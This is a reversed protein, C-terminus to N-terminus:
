LQVLAVVCMRTARIRRHSYKFLYKVTESYDNTVIQRIACVRSALRALCVRVQLTDLHAVRRASRWSSHCGSQVDASSANAGSRAILACLLRAITGKNVQTGQTKTRTSVGPARSLKNRTWRTESLLNNNGLRGSKNSLWTPDAGVQSDLSQEIRLEVIRSVSQTRDSILSNLLSNLQTSDHQTYNLM